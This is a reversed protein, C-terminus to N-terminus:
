LTSEATVETPASKMRCDGRVEPHSQYNPDMEVFAAWPPLDICEDRSNNLSAKMWQFLQFDQFQPRFQLFGM